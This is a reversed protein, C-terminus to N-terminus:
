IVHEVFIGVATEGDYATVVARRYDQAVGVAPVEVGVVYGLVHRCPEFPIFLLHSHEVMM